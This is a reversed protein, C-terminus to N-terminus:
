RARPSSYLALYQRAADEATAIERPITVPENRMIVEALGEAGAELPVLWGGGHQRIREGLAAYDFAAVAAGAHWSESLALSFSEDFISPLVVRGIRHRALLSPLTGARYYGHIVINPVRRLARFIEEDGGGFVHLERDLLRALDPLLHAGKKRKVAGAFAIADGGGSVPTANIGPEIIPGDVGCADRRFRSPYIVMAAGELLERTASDDHVSVFYPVGLLLIEAVNVGYTGEIHLLKAGTIDLAQRISTVRLLHGNVELGGPHLLAVNRHRREARLRSRLQVAVGGIRPAVSMACYNLVHPPNELGGPRTLPGTGRARMALERVAEEIREAARRVASAIGEGRVVSAITGIM